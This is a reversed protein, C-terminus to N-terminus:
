AAHDDASSLRGILDVPSVTWAFPVRDAALGAERLAAVMEAAGVPNLSHVVFLTRRFLEAFGLLQRVVYRGDEADALLLGQSAEGGLDHDLYVLDLNGLGLVCLADRANGVHTVVHGVSAREFALHRQPDDDLFLIRM